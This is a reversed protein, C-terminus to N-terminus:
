TLTGADTVTGEPEVEVVKAIVVLASCLPYETVIVAESEKVDAVATRLAFASGTVPILRLGVETIPPIEEVAVTLNAFEAGTPPTITVTLELLVLAVTGLVTVTGAPEVDAVNTTFVEGTAIRLPAAIVAEWPVVPILAESVIMGAVRVENETIGEVIGPPADAVPESVSLPAAGAPPRSTVVEEFLELAVTGAETVIGDPAEVPVNVIEVIATAVSVTAVIRAACPPLEKAAGSVIWAERKLPRVTEGEVTVPPVVVVPVTSRLLAAGVPPVVTLREDLLVATVTGDETVIGAPNVDALKAILVVACFPLKVAVMVAVRPEAVLDAVSLTVATASDLREIAGFGTALPLVATPVTVSFPWAGAPPTTTFRDEPLATAETGADTVTGAPLVEAVKLILARRTFAGVFTAIVALAPPTVLIAVRVISGGVRCDTATDGLATTPPESVVTVPVTAKLPGGGKELTATLRDLEFGLMAVTGLETISAVPADVAENAKVWL